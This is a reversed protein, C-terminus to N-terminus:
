ALIKLRESFKNEEKLMYLLVLTGQNINNSIEQLVILSCNDQKLMLIQGAVNKNLANGPRLTDQGHVLYLFILIFALQCHVLVLGYESRRCWFCSRLVIKQLQLFFHQEFYLQMFTFTNQEVGHM